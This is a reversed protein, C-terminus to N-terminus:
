KGIEFTLGSDAAGEYKADGAPFSVDLTYSGPKQTLKVNASANGNADTTGVVGQTGLQFTVKKGSVPQGYEDVLNATLTVTKSPASDLPGTFGLTTERKTVHITRSDSQCAGNKDCVELTAVYDGPSAYAHPVSPGGSASPSGDGFTWTYHLTSQDDAGPDTAQGNFQVTRGWDATTDPGANVSPKVNAVDVTFSQTASLGTVDTVTLQGDYVGNDGFTRQPSPGFSKTGNSFEWVYSDIPCQSSVSTSFSIPSGEQGAFQGLPAITPTVNNALLAGMPTIFGSGTVDFNPTSVVETGIGISTYDFMDIIGLPDLTNVIRIKVQEKVTVAPTWHFPDLQYDVADGAKGTCPVQFAETQVAGTLSLDDPGAVQSGGISMGRTVVAGEPTVDFEVGVALKAAIFTGPIPSPLAGPLPVGPSTAECEFGAGALKVECSTNDTDVILPGFDISNIEGTLEWSVALKGETLPAARSVALEAGQRVKDSDWGVNTTLKGSWQAKASVTLNTLVLPFPGDPIVLPAELQFGGLSVQSSSVPVVKQNTAPAATAPAAAVLTAALAALCLAPLVWRTRRGDPKKTRANM